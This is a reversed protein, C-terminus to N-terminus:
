LWSFPPRRNPQDESQQEVEEEDNESEEIPQEENEVEPQEFRPPRPGFFPHGPRGKRVIPEFYVNEAQIVLDKVKIIKRQDSM